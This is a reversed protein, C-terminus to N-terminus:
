STEQPVKVLRLKRDYWLARIRRVESIVSEPICDLFTKHLGLRIAMRGVPTLPVYYRHLDVRQFGNREKFDSLTDRQRQGYAFNSYALFPIGREACIRVSHAILANTPAKDRHQIMSVINMLNAQRKSEDTVLKVFGILTDGLFAGIFISSDLYTAEEEHVKAL